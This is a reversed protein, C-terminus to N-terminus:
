FQDKDLWELLEQKGELERQVDQLRGALWEVDGAVQKTLEEVTIEEDGIWVREM